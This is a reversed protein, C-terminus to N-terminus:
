PRNLRDITKSIKEEIAKKIAAIEEPLEIGFFERKPMMFGKGKGSKGGENHVLAIDYNKDGDSGPIYLRVHDEHVEVTISDLMHGSETLNVRRKKKYSDSYKQFGSGSVDRGQRTRRIVIQRARRGCLDAVDKDWLKTMSKIALEIDKGGKSTISM